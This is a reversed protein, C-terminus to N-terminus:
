IATYYQEWLTKKEYDIKESFMKFNITNNSFLDVLWLLAKNEISISQKEFSNRSILFSQQKESLSKDFFSNLIAIKTIVPKNHMWYSM